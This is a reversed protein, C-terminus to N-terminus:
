FILIFIILEQDTWFVFTPSRYGSSEISKRESDPVNPRNESPNYEM